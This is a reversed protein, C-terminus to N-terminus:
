PFRQMDFGAPFIGNLGQQALPKAREGGITRICRPALVPRALLQGQQQRDFTRHRVAAGIM